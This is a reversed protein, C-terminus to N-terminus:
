QLQNARHVGIKIRLQTPNKISINYWKKLLIDIHLPLISRLLYVQQVFQTYHILLTVKTQLEFPDSRRAFRCFCFFVM